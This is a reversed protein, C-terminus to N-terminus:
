EVREQASELKTIEAARIAFRGERGGIPKDSWNVRQSYIGFGWFAFLLSLALNALLLPRAIKGALTLLKMTVKRGEAGSNSLTLRGCCSSTRSGRRRWPEILRSFPM